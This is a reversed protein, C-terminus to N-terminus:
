GYEKIYPRVDRPDVFALRELFSQLSVLEEDNPNGEWSTIEIGNQPQMAFNARVNDVILTRALNRGLM